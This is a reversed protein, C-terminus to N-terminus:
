PNRIAVVKNVPRKSINEWRSAKKTIEPRIEEDYVKLRGLLAHMKNQKHNFDRLTM